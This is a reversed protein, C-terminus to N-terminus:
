QTRKIRFSGSVSLLPANQSQRCTGSFTGEAYQGVASAVSTYTITVNNSIYWALQQGGVNYTYGPVEIDLGYCPYTGPATPGPATQYLQINRWSGGVWNTGGFLAGYPNAAPAGTYYATDGPVSNDWVYTTTDVVIRFFEANVPQNNCVQITGASTAGATFTVTAPNSQVTYSSDIGIISISTGGSCALVNGSFVGSANTGFAYHQNGITVLVTGNAIAANNCNVLTGSLVTQQSGPTVTIPPLTTAATFPGINQTYAAAGCNDQVTLVLMENAPVLGSVQGTSDTYGYTAFPTNGRSIRVRVYPMPQGNSGVFNLTLNVLSSNPLDANWFSFHPVNGVYTNGVKTASGEEKWIGTTEDVYWLPITPPASAQASAPIATTLTASLGSKVQLKQGNSGELEVAMMGYSTLLVRRGDKDNAMFSGPVTQAIDTASPDIYAAYVKVPGTYAAGSAADVVGGAPLTVRSGNSLTADGGAAGDVTGAVDRKVLKISVQNTASTAAFTRYAKFYGAKSATVVSQNKDLAAGNIRFYGSNDTTVTASGVKVTVGAAPQGNEDFVNGQLNSTVPNPLIPPVDPTGVYEVQKQCSGLVLAALAILTLRSFLTMIPQKNPM